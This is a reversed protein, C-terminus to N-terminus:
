AAPSISLREHRAGAIFAVAREVVAADRLIRRHGLGVTVSLTAAPLAESIALAHDFLVEKDHRDHVVLTPLTVRPGFNAVDLQALPVGYRREIRRAVRATQAADLGLHQMYAELFRQPGRPAGIMVMREVAPHLAYALAAAAGGMSHGIVGQFPGLQQLIATLAFAFDAESSLSPRAAGHGPMDVAVARYGAGILKPVFAGLQTARGEWGHVLLVSPGSGWSYTPLPVTRYRVEGREASSLWESEREPRAHRRPTLFQREAWGAALEPAVAGMARWAGRALQRAIESRGNTSNEKGSATSM